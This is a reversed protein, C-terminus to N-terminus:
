LLRDEEMCWDPIPYPDYDWDHLYPDESEPEPDWDDTLMMPEDDYWMEDLYLEREYDEWTYDNVMERNIAEHTMRHQRRIKKKSLRKIISKEVPTCYAYDDGFAHKHPMSTKHGGRKDRNNRTIQEM